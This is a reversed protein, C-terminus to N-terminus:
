CFFPFTMQRRSLACFPSFEVEPVWNAARVNTLGTTRNARATTSQRRRDNALDASEQASVIVMDFSAKTQTSRQSGESHKRHLAFSRGMSRSRPDGFIRYSEQWQFIMAFTLSSNKPNRYIRKPQKNSHSSVMWRSRRFEEYCM